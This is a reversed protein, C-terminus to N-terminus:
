FLQLFYLITSYSYYCFFLFNSCMVGTKFSKCQSGIESRIVYLIRTVVKLHKFLCEGPYKPSRKVLYMGESRLDHLLLKNTSGLILKRDHLPLDNKNAARFAHFTRISSILLELNTLWNLLLSLVWKNSIM